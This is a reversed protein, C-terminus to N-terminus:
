SNEALSIDIYLIGIYYVYSMSVVYIYCVKEMSKGYKKLPKDKGM